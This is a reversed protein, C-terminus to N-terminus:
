AARHTLRRAARVADPATLLGTGFLYGAYVAAGIFVEAALAVINKPRYLAALALVTTGTLLSGAIAPVLAQWQLALSLNLRSRVAWAMSALRLFELLTFEIAVGTIGYRSAVPVATALAAVLSVLNIRLNVANDDRAMLLSWYIPGLTHLCGYVLLVQLATTLANWKSGLILPVAAPTVLVGITTLPLILLGVYRLMRLAAQRVRDLDPLMRTYAPYLVAGLAGAVQIAALNGLNYAIAYYGLARVGLVAGVIANDVNTYVLRLMSTAALMRAYTILEQAATLDFTLAPGWGAMWFLGASLVASRAVTAIVISWYGFHLYALAVAAIAYAFSAAVDPVAKRGQRLDRELLASPIRSVSYLVISIGVVRLTAGIAQNRYITALADATLFLITYLTAGLAAIMWFATRARKQLDAAQARMLVRAIGVDTLPLFVMLLFAGVNAVGFDLPSLLRALLLTGALSLFRSSMSAVTGMAVAIAAPRALGRGLTPAVPTRVRPSAGLAAM